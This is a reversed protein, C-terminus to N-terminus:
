RTDNFSTAAHEDVVTVVHRKNIILLGENGSHVLALSTPSNSRQYFVLAERKRPKKTHRLNQETCENGIQSDHRFREGM